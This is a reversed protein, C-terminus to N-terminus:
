PNIRPRPTPRKLKEEHEEQKQGKEDQDPKLNEDIEDKWIRTWSWSLEAKNGTHGQTHRCAGLIVHISDSLADINHTTLYKM